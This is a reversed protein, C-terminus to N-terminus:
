GALSCYFLVWKVVATQWYYVIKAQLRNDWASIIKQATDKRSCLISIALM